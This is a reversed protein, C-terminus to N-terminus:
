HNRSKLSNWRIMDMIKNSYKICEDYGVFCRIKYM